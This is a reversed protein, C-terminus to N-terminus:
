NKTKPYYARFLAQRLSEVRVEWGVYVSIEEALDRISRGNQPFLNKGLDSHLWHALVTYNNKPFSDLSVEQKVVVYGENLCFQRVFAWNSDKLAQYKLSLLKENTM